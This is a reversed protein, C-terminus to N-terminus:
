KPRPSHIDRDARIYQGTRVLRVAEVLTRAANRVEEHIGSDADLAAHSNAYPEYYGIYRGLCAAPAAPILEM